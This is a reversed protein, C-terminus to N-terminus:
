GSLILLPVHTEKKGMSPILLTIRYTIARLTTEMGVRPFCCKSELLRTIQYVFLDTVLVWRVGAPCARNPFDLTEENTDLCHFNIAEDAPNGPTSSSKSNSGAIMRFGAPFAKQKTGRHLYYVMYSSRLLQFSGDRRKYYASPMWYGSKDAQIQVSSCSSQM